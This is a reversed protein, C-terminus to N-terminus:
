WAQGKGLWVMAAAVANASAAGAVIGLPTALLALGFVKWVQVEAFMVALTLAALAAYVSDATQMSWHFFVRDYLSFYVTNPPTWTEKHLPSAPSLLYDVIAMTNGAFHQASGREINALCDRIDALDYVVYKRTHYFYSHGVIAM